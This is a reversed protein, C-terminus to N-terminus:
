MRPLANASKPDVYSIVFKFKGPTDQRIDAVQQIQFHIQHDVKKELADVLDQRIEKTFEATAVIEVRVYEWDTQILRAKMLGPRDFFAFSFGSFRQGTSTYICDDIRGALSHLKPLTRGCPCPLDDGLAGRDLTNYRLLPQAYNHLGTAIIWGEEGPPLPTGDDDLIECIGYEPSIHYSGEACQAIFVNHEKLGYSDLIPAAFAQQIQQRQFDYLAESATTIAKPQWGDLEHKILLSSLHEIAQPHGRVLRPRYRLLIEYYNKINDDNIFDSSFEIGRVKQNVLYIAQGIHRLRSDLDPMPRSRLDLFPQGLRFGAWRWLRQISCFEMVNSGKDWYITLPTGTTGSTSIAKPHYRKFDRSIFRDPHERLISKSLIPLKRLTTHANLETIESIEIGIKKFLARYYPVQEGSFRLLRALTRAQYRHFQDASWHESRRLLSYTRLLDLPYFFDGIKFEVVSKEGSVKAL